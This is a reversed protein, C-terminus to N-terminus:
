PGSLLSTLCFFCSGNSAVTEGGVPPKCSCSCGDDNALGPDRGSSGKGRIGEHRVGGTPALSSSGYDTRVPAAIGAQCLLWVLSRGEEKERLRGQDAGRRSAPGCRWHALSPGLCRGVVALGASPYFSMADYSPGCV